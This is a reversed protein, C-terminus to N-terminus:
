TALDTPLSLYCKETSGSALMDRLNRTTYIPVHGANPVRGEPSKLVIKFADAVRELLSEDRRGSYPGCYALATDHSDCV